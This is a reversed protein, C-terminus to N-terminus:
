RGASTMDTWAPMLIDLLILDPSCNQIAKLAVQGTIAPRVLYGQATLIETMARLNELSDDVVVIDSQQLSLASM